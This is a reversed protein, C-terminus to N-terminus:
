FLIEEQKVSQKDWNQVSVEDEMAFVICKETEDIKDCSLHKCKYGKSEMSEFMFVLFDVTKCKVLLSTEQSEWIQKLKNIIDM